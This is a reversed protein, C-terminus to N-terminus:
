YGHDLQPKNDIHKTPIYAHIDANVATLVHGVLQDEWENAGTTEVDFVIEDEYELEILFADLTEEDTILWYNDPTEEVMKRLREEARQEDLVHWVRLAEAKSFRKGASEAERGIKGADMAAKVELLRRADADSNKMSFIREWAEDM